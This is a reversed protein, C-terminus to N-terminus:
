PDDDGADFIHALWKLARIEYDKSLPLMRRKKLRQGSNLVQTAAQRVRANTNDRRVFTTQLHLIKRLGKLHFVDLKDRQAATLQLSELGDLVKAKVIADWAHMKFRLPCNSHM